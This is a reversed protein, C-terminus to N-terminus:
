SSFQLSTSAIFQWMSQATFFIRICTRPYKAALKGYKLPVQETYTYTQIQLDVSYRIHFVRWSIDTSIKVAHPEGTWTQGNAPLQFYKVNSQSAALFVVNANTVNNQQKNRLCYLSIAVVPYMSVTGFNMGMWIHTIM